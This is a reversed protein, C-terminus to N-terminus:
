KLTKVKNIFEDANTMSFLVVFEKTPILVVNNKDTVFALAKQGNKLKMWGLSINPLRFGNTRYSVNYEQNESLNVTKIEDTLVTEIPIKKGYFISKIVLERGSLVLTSNKISDILGYTLVLMLIILILFIVFLVIVPASFVGGKPEIMSNVYLVNDMVQSRFAVYSKMTNKDILM